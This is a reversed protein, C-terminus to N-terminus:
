PLDRALHFYTRRLRMGVHEYLGLAGSRSDTSLGVTPAGLAYAAGFAHQLLARALGRGRHPRAVALKDVWMDGGEHTLLAVGVVADGHAALVLNEPRFSPREFTEAAFDEFPVPDRGEWENFADEIVQYAAQGDRAPDAARLAYGAPVVPAAPEDGHAIELVWSRWRETYGHGRLLAIAGANHESVPQGIRQDGRASAVAWTWRMLAAGVGCGRYAPDVCADARGPWTSDAYGVLSGDDYVAVAHDAFSFSPRMWTAVIDEDTIEGAGDDHEECRRWLAGVAAADDPTLLAATLGAPLALDPM